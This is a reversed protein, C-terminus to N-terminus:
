QYIVLPLQYIMDSRMDKVINIINLHFNLSREIFSLYKFQFVLEMIIGATVSSLCKENCTIDEVLSHLSLAKAIM